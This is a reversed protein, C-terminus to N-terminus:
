YRRPSDSEQYGAQSEPISDALESAVEIGNAILVEVIDYKNM